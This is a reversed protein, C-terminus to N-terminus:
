RREESRVLIASLTDGDVDSDNALVGPASVTLQTDEPTTYSDDNAAVPADNVPTVTITVTTTGSQAQGDSAKYTFSDTGNFNLAPMYVLSGDSNLTLTGHTPNSVLVASLTDGDVDSDNALVGLGSVTLTTDEATSYSDAVAVPADNGSTVTLTACNTVSNVAGNVIVCYIGADGPTVPGVTYASNTAGPIQVGRNDTWQYAFPGTGSATTSFTGTDGSTLTMDNPGSATTPEIVTLTACNTVSNVAGSIIVCYAGADGPTVPGVTYSSNTSGPIVVGNDTWQYTFPGTGSPTTSFTGTSGSILTM